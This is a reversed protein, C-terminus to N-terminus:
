NCILRNVYVEAKKLSFFDNSFSDSAFGLPQPKPQYSSFPVVSIYLSGMGSWELLFASFIALFM